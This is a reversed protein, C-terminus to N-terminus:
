GLRGIHQLPLDLCSAPMTSRLKSLAEARPSGYRRGIRFTIVTFAHRVYALMIQDSYNEETVCWGGPFEGAAKGEDLEQFRHLCSVGQGSEGAEQGFVRKCFGSCLGYNSRVWERESPTSQSLSSPILKVINMARGEGNYYLFSTARYLHEFRLRRRVLTSNASMHVLVASVCEGTGHSEGASPTSSPSTLLDLADFTPSTPQPTLSTVKWVLEWAARICAVARKETRTEGRRGLIELHPRACVSM